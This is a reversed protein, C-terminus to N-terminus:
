EDSHTSSLNESTPYNHKAEEGEPAACSVM